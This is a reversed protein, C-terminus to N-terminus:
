LNCVSGKVIAISQTGSTKETKERAASSVVESLAPFQALLVESVGPM